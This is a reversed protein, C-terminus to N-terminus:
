EEAVRERVPLGRGKHVVEEGDRKVTNEFGM